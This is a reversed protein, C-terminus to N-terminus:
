QGGGAHALADHVDLSSNVLLAHVRHVRATRSALKLHGRAEAVDHPFRGVAGVVVLRGVQPAAHVLRKAVSEIGCAALARVAGRAEACAREDVRARRERGVARRGKHLRAVLEHNARRRYLLVAPHPPQRVLPQAAEGRRILSVEGIHDVALDMHTPPALPRRM